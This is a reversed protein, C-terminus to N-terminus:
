DTSWSRPAIVPLRRVPAGSRIDVEIAGRATVYAGVTRTPKAPEREAQIRRLEAAIGAYDDVIAM